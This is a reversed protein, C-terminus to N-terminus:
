EEDMFKFLKIEKDEIINGNKRDLLSYNFYYDDDDDFVTTRLLEYRSFTLKAEETLNNCYDLEFLISDEQFYRYIEVPSANRSKPLELKYYTHEEQPCHLIAEDCDVSFQYLESAKTLDYSGDYMKNQEKNTIM